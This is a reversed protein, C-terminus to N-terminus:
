ATCAFGRAEVVETEFTMFEQRILARTNLVIGIAESLAQRRALLSLFASRRQQISNSSEAYNPPFRREPRDFSSTKRERGGLRSASLRGVSGRSALAGKESSEHLCFSFGRSELGCLFTSSEKQLAAAKRFVLPQWRRYVSTLLM